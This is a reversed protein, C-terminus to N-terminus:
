PNLVFDFPIDAMARMAVGDVTYPRFRVRQVAQKAADDLASVGSSQRVDISELEGHQSITVRLIVKGEQGAQKARPPYVPSPPGDLYDLQTVHILKDHNPAGSSSSSPSSNPNTNTNTNLTSNTTPNPTSNTTPNPTATPVTNSAAAATHASAQNADPTSTPPNQPQPQLQAQPEAKPEAKPESKPEAPPKAKPEAQPEAQPQAQTQPQTQPQPESQAQLQTDSTLDPEPKSETVAVQPEEQSIASEDAKIEPKIEGNPSVNNKEHDPTSSKRVLDNEQTRGTEKEPAIEPATSMEPVQVRGSAVGGSTISPYVVGADDPASILVPNLFFILWAILGVHVLTVAAFIAIWSSRSSRM